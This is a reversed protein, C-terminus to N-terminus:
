WVKASDKLILLVKDDALPLDGLDGQRNMDAGVAVPLITLNEAIRLGPRHAHACLSSNEEISNKSETTTTAPQHFMEDDFDPTKRKRSTEAVLLHHHSLIERNNSQRPAWPCSSLWMSRFLWVVALMSEFSFVGELSRFGKQEDWLSRMEQLDGANNPDRWRVGSFYYEGNHEQHHHSCRRERSKEFGDGELAQVPLSSFWLTLAAELCTKCCFSYELRKRQIPDTGLFQSVFRTLSWWVLATGLM